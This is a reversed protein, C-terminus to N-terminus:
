DILSNVSTLTTSMCQTRHDCTHQKIKDRLGCELSTGTFKSNGWQHDMREEMYRMFYCILDFMREILISQCLVDSSKAAGRLKMCGDIFENLHVSKKGDNDLMLFLRRADAAEIGLTKFYTSIAVSELNATFEEWSVDQSGDTDMTHFVAQIEEEWQQRKALEERIVTERDADVVERAHQVFIGTLLRLVALTLLAVFFLFISLYFAGLPKLAEYALGWPSGGTVAKALTIMSLGLNGFYSHLLELV